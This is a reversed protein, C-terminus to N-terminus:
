VLVPLQQAPQQQQQAKRLPQCVSHAPALEDQQLLQCGQQAEPLLLSGSPALMLVPQQQQAQRHVPRAAAQPKACQALHLSACLALNARPHQQQRSLAAALPMSRGLQLQELQQHQWHAGQQHALLQLLAAQM